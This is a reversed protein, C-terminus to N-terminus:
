QKVFGASSKHGNATQIQVFYSGVAYKTIDIPINQFGSILQINNKLIIKGSADTIVLSARTNSLSGVGIKIDNKSPNPSITFINLPSENQRTVTVVSSYQVKNDFDLQKLRYYVIGYLASKDTTLYSIATNSNGNTAKSPIFSISSFDIGNSSRQLEFGRNNFESSTIWEVVNGEKTPKATISTFRVPLTYLLLVTDTFSGCANEAVLVLTTLQATVENAGPTYSATLSTSDPTFIGSANTWFANNYIGSISGSLNVSSGPVLQQDTGADVVPPTVFSLNLTATSDCGAANTTGFTYIGSTTYTTGNWTYSNCAVLDETSTSPSLITLDLTATSDCGQANISLLNYLGSSTYTIGNWTYSDCSTVTTLSSTAECPTSYNIDVVNIYGFFSPSQVRIDFIASDKGTMTFFAARNFDINNAADYSTWVSDEASKIEIIRPQVATRSGWFKFTYTKTNDLGTFKWRGSNTSPEAFAYDITASAPYDGVIGASPNDRNVGPGALNFTGDIREVVEMGLNTSINTSTVANTLKVGNTGSTVLNWYNGFDPDPSATANQGFDILVRSGVQVKITDLDEAGDND